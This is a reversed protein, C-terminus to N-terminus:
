EIAEQRAVEETKKLSGETRQSSEGSFGGSQWIVREERKDFFKVSAVVRIRFETVAQNDDYRLPEKIYETLEGSLISDAGEPDKVVRLNGDFIFRDIILRTIENEIGPSYLRYPRKNSQEAAIDIGNKFNEVYVTKIHPPLLSKTTYGCGSFGFILFWLGFIFFPINNM